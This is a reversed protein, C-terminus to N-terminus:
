STVLDTCRILWAHGLMHQMDLLMWGAYPILAVPPAEGVACFGRQHHVCRLRDTAIQPAESLAIHLSTMYHRASAMHRLQLKGRGSPVEGFEGWAGTM